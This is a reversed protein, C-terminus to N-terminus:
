EEAYVPVEAFRQRFPKSLYIGAKTEASQKARTRASAAITDETIKLGKEPNMLSFNRMEERVDSATEFDGRTRANFYQNLLGQRRDLLQKEIDKQWANLQYQSALRQPTIGAGQLISEVLTVDKIIPEGRTTLAGETSLRISKSINRMAAM